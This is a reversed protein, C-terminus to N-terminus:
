EESDATQEKVMHEMIQYFHEVAEVGFLAIMDNLQPGMYGLDFAKHAKSLQLGKATVYLGTFRGNKAAHERRILGKQELKSVVQSVASKSRGNRRAIATVTTGPHEEIYSITHVEASAFLEGTGYDTLQKYLEANSQCYCYELDALQCPSYKLQKYKEETSM